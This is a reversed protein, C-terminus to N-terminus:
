INLSAGDVAFGEANRHKSEMYAFEVKESFRPTSNKDKGERMSSAGVWHQSLNRLSSAMHHLIWLLLPKMTALYAALIGTSLELVTAL